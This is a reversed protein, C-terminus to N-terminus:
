LMIIQRNDLLDVAIIAKPELNNKKAICISQQLNNSDINYTDFM